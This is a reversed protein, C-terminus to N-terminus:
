SPMNKTPLSMRYFLLIKRRIIMRMNKAYARIISLHCAVIHCYFILCFGCSNGSFHKCSQLSGNRSLAAKCIVYDPKLCKNWQSFLYTYFFYLYNVNQKFICFINQRWVHRSLEVNPQLVLM